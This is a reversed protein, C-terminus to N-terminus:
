NFECSWAICVEGLPDGFLNEVFMSRFAIDKEFCRMDIKTRNVMDYKGIEIFVGHKALCKISAQLKEGSLSNLVYDVGRGRTNTMIMRQFSVDRSNGINEPKLQPFKDLLFKIKQDSSVTTFVNLGYAFAVQIAAQGVGGAGSHILISKGAEIRAHEFFALYVTLYVIPVTAAEALTWNEPVEWQCMKSNYYISSLGGYTGAGFVRKGDHTVGSWDIGLIKQEEIRSYAMNPTIQGLAIMLDKFNLTSYHIRITEPNDPMNSGQIWALTSLDGKVLCKVYCDTFQPKEEIVNVLDIHKFTGWNGNRLINVAFGLELQLRYFSNDISFKPARDDDIFVCKLNKGIQERRICNVLGLIGSINDRQSYAIVQVNEKLASQLPELWESVNSTIKIVKPSDLPLPKSEQLVYIVTSDTQYRAIIKFGNFIKHEHELKKEEEAILFGDSKLCSKVNQLFSEDGVCNRKVILDLESYDSIDKDDIEINEVDVKTPTLLTVHFKMAPADKLAQYIFSSFFSQQDGDNVEVCKLSASLNKELLLQICVKAADRKSFISQSFNSIFKHTELVPKSTERRRSIESGDFNHIEVGGIVITKSAKDGHFQFFKQETEMADILQFHKDPDILIKGFYTPLVLARTDDMLIFIQLLADLFTSWNNNWQIMGFLGDDRVEKVGRFIGQHHYGRLRMEKYFDSENLMVSYKREVLPLEMAEFENLKKIYGQALITSKETVEFYGSGRNICICLLIDQNRELFTIRTLKVDEFSIRMRTKLNGYMLNFTEWVLHILVTGPILIRGDIIHDQIFSYNKDNLNIVVNRRQYYQNREMVPVIYNDKHNWKILPAIMRTGRSVPYNIKPYLNAINVDIGNEFLEGLSTLFINTSNKSDRQTLSIHTAERKSGKLISKLLSHPGIEITIIDNPLIEMAEQFLVTETLNRVHYEPSSYQSEVDDWLDQPYCTSLWKESRKKPIKILNKLKNFYKTAYDQLYRSHLANGSSNIAKVFTGKQKLIECFNAVSKEPGTITTLEQSNHCAVDIDRPLIKILEQHGMGVAAMGGAINESILNAHGREYAVLITEEATFCGDAYACTIEGLSHGVIFDPKIDIAKLIDTIAIEVAVIGIYSNLVNNNFIDDDLTTIVRKLDIGKTSLVNHSKNISDAFIPIKMLDVAMGTWQSGIGNYIWVIQRRKGTFNHLHRQICEANISQEHNQRFIGYGRINNGLNTQAQSSQLLAIFEGDLPHQTIDDFIANVAENTRGSWLVLRELRDSPVGRNQKEKTNRRFLVHSNAGGLGFNNMSIFDGHLDKTETVVKIRGEKFAEVDSRLSKLKINSPIQRREFALVIKAISSFASASEAHGMNSKVSGVLLPEKRNECYVADIASIEECDGIVTGTAHAEVFHVDHPNVPLNKFTERMLNEQMVRSPFSAGQEKYGDNNVCTNVVTAYVRKSDKHKQLFIMGIAESRIFGDANEDFSRHSGTPSLVKGRYIHFFCIFKLSYKNFVKLKKLFNM